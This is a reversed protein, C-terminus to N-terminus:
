GAQGIRPLSVGNRWLYRSIRVPSDQFGIRRYVPAGLESAFLVGYHYGLALAEQYAILTIAAGIGRGRAGPTTAVGFVSAVGAGNFLMNSAVPEGDLLGVYMVWPTHGLGLALTADVWAQGAWEPVEMGNVFAQKFQELQTPTRVREMVFNRPVRKIAEYDLAALRATMGPANLEHVTLGHATLREGTDAPQTEPGTWWFFFPAKRSQFYAISDSIANDLDALALRTHWVGKFMPNFPAALHRSLAPTEHLEAGPLRTMARFLEFLNRDVAQNLQESSADTLIPTM